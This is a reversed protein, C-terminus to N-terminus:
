RKEKPQTRFQHCGNAALLRIHDDAHIIRAKIHLERLGDFFLETNRHDVIDSRRNPSPMPRPAFRNRPIRRRYSGNERHIHRQIPFVAGAHLKHPMRQHIQHSRFPRLIFGAGMKWHIGSFLLQQQQRPTTPLLHLTQQRSHKGGRLKQRFFKRELTPQRARARNGLRLKRRKQGLGFQINLHRRRMQM